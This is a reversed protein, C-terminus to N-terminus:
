AIAVPCKRACLVGRCDATWYIALGVEVHENVVHAVEKQLDAPHSVAEPKVVV